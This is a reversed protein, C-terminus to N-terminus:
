PKTEYKIFQKQNISPLLYMFITKTSNSYKEMLGKYIRNKFTQMSISPTRTKSHKNMLNNEQQYQM